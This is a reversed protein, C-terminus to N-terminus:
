QSSAKGSAFPAEGAQRRPEDRPSQSDTQMPQHALIAPGEVVTRTDKGVRDGPSM